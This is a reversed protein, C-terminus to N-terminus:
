IKRGIYGSTAEKKKSGKIAKTIKDAIDETKKVIKYSVGEQFKKKQAQKARKADDKKKQLQEEKTGVRDYRRFGTLDREFLEGKSKKSQKETPPTVSHDKPMTPGKGITKKAPSNGFGSFKKMKFPGKKM